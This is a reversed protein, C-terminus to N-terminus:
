MREHDMECLECGRVFSEHGRHHQFVASRATGSGTGGGTKQHSSDGGSEFETSRRHGSHYDRDAEYTATSMEDHRTTSTSPIHPISRTQQNSTYPPRAPQPLNPSRTMPVSEHGKEGLGVALDEYRPIARQVAASTVAKSRPPPQPHQGVDVIMGRSDGTSWTFAESSRRAPNHRADLQEPREQSIRNAPASPPLGTSFHRRAAPHQSPVNSSSPPASVSNRPDDSSSVSSQSHHTDTAFSLSDRLTSKSTSTSTSPRSHHPIPPSTTNPTRDAVQVANASHFETSQASASSGNQDIGGAADGASGISGPQDTTSAFATRGSVDGAKSVGEAADRTTAPQSPGTPRGSGELRGATIGMGAGDVTAALNRNGAETTGYNTGKVIAWASQGVIDSEGLAVRAKILRIEDRKKDEELEDELSQPLTSTWRADALCRFYEIDPYSSSTQRLGDSYFALLNSALAGTSSAMRLLVSAQKAGILGHHDEQARSIDESLTDKLALLGSHAGATDSLSKSAKRYAKEAKDHKKGIAGLYADHTRSEKALLSFYKSADSNTEEYEKDVKKSLKVTLAALGELMTATPRITQAAIETKDMCGALGKLANGLKRGSKGLSALVIRYENWAVLVDEMAKVTKLAEDRSVYRPRARQPATTTTTTTTTPTTPASTPGPFYSTRDSTSSSASPSKGAASSHSPSPPGLSLPSTAPISLSTRSPSISLSKLSFM